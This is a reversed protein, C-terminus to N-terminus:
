TNCYLALLEKFYPDMQGLSRQLTNSVINLEQKSYM